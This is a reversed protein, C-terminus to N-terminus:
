DQQSAHRRVCGGTSRKYLLDHLLCKCIKLQRKKERVDTTAAMLQDMEHLYGELRRVEAGVKGNDESEM